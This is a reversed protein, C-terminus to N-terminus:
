EDHVEALAARLATKARSLRSKVTGEDVQLAAAVEETSLEHVERLLFTARQEPSLGAVARALASSLARRDAEDDTRAASGAAPVIEALADIPVLRPVRRKLEDLALRTAITLLWTSLRAAGARDFLALARFARLFTEQALDEVLAGRGSPGLLRSLLAFVRRQYLTVLQRCAADEGRQARVLTLEDLEQATSHGPIAKTSAAVNV